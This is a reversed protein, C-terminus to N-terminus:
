VTDEPGPVSGPIYFTEKEITGNLLFPRKQSGRNRGSRGIWDARM